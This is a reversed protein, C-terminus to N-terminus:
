MCVISLLIVMEKIASASRRGLPPKTYAGGGVVWALRGAAVPEACAPLERSIDPHIGYQREFSPTSLM